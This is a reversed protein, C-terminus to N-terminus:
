QSDHQLPCPKCVDRRSEAKLEKSYTCLLSIAPDYPLRNKLKKTSCGYQKRYHSGWKAKGCAIYFPGLEEVDKSVSSIKEGGGKGREEEGKEGKGEVGEEEKREKGKKREKDEEKKQYHGNM